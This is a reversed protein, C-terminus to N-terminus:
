YSITDTLYGEKTRTEITENTSRKLLFVCGIMILMYLFMLVPFSVRFSLSSFPLSSVLAAVYTISSLIATDVYGVISALFPSLIGLLAVLFSLLMALPVFPLVIANALLAYLSLTGFTYSIYPLTACYAALTTALVDSMMRPTKRELTKKIPDSLYVIGATALFSLHLSVDHLLGYPDYLIIAILSVILSQRAVYERGLLMALLGIFAMGTARIVSAEGGVAIVFAVVFLSSVLVRVLLPVYALLFLVFSIIIAINFGSLVVIHSLGATRFADKTEKPLSSDGFLVGNALTSAPFSVYTSVNKMLYEKSRGLIARLTHAETDVREISPYMMESGIDHTRLYSGYDFSQDEGHPYSRKPIMVKGEARITDGIHFSPYLPARIQVDYMDDEETTLVITQYTDGLEPTRKIEGEITCSVDCVIPKKEEELQVRVVGLVIGTSVLATCVSLAVRTDSKRGFRYITGQLIALILAVTACETAYPSGYGITIGLALGVAFLVTQVHM